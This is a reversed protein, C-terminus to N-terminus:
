FTSITTCCQSHVQHWQVTSKLITLVTCKIKNGFNWFLTNCIELDYLMVISTGMLGRSLNVFLVIFVVSLIGDALGRFFM